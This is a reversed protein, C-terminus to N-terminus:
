RFLVKDYHVNGYDIKYVMKEKFFRVDNIKIFLFLISKKKFSLSVNM